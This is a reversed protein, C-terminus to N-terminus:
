ELELHDRHHNSLYRCILFFLYSPPIVTQQEVHRKVSMYQVYVLAVNRSLAMAQPFSIFFNAAM